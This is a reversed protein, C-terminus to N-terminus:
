HRGQYVVTIDATIHKMSLLDQAQTDNYVGKNIYVLATESIKPLSTPTTAIIPIGSLNYLFLGRELNPVARLPHMIELLRFEEWANDPIIFYVKRIINQFISFEVINGQHLHPSGNYSNLGRMHPYNDFLLLVRGKVNKEKWILYAKEPSDVIHTTNASAFIRSHYGHYSVVLIVLIFWLMAALSYSM